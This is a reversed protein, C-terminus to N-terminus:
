FDLISNYKTSISTKRVVFYIIVGGAVVIGGIIGGFAGSSVGDNSAATVGITPAGTPTKTPMTPENTPAATPSASTTPPDTPISTPPPTPALTANPKDCVNIPTDDYPDRAVDKNCVLDGRCNTDNFCGVRGQWCQCDDTCYNIEGPYDRPGSTCM